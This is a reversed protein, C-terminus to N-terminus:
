AGAAVLRRAVLAPVEIAPCHGCREITEVTAQPYTRRATAAGRVPVYRDREGWLVVAAGRYRALRAHLADFRVLDRM